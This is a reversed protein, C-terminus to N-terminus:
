DCQDADVVDRRRGFDDSVAREAAQVGDVQGGSVFQPGFEGREDAVVLAQPVRGVGEAQGDFRGGSRRERAAAEEVSGYVPIVQDLASLQLVRAVSLSPSILALLGGDARLSRHLRVIEHLAGSDIFTLGSMDVLLFRPKKAAEASLVEGLVPTTVDAEGILRVVTRSGGEGDATSVSVSLETVRLLIDRQQRGQFRGPRGWGQADAGTLGLKPRHTPTAQARHREGRGAVRAGPPHGAAAQAVDLRHRVGRQGPEVLLRQEPGQDLAHLLHELGVGCGHQQEVPRGPLQDRGSRAPDLFLDTLAHADRKAGAEGAPDRRGALRDDEGGHVVGRNPVRQQDVPADPAQQAHGQEDAAVDDPHQVDARQAPPQEALLVDVQQPHSGVPGCEGQVRQHRLVVRKGGEGQM